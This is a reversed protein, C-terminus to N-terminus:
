FISLKNTNQQDTGMLLEGVVISPILIKYKKEECQEILYQTRAIMHEQNESAERKVGWILVQTDFCVLNM